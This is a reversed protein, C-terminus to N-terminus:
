QDLRYGVGRVTSILKPKKPDDELLKRLWSIHVFLTRIDETYDTDWVRKFLEERRLDTGPNELMAHLLLTLRPTLCVEKGHYYAMNTQTDLQLKGWDSPECNSIKVYVRLRNVLKQVTFPLRLLVNAKPAERIPEDESVILIIPLKSDHNRFWSTIRLGNIKLSAANIVVVDPIFSEMLDFGQTGSNATVVQYGKRVLDEAFSYQLSRGEILIINGQPSELLDVRREIIEKLVPGRGGAKVRAILMIHM